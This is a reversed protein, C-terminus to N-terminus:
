DAMIVMEPQKVTKETSRFQKGCKPCTFLTEDMRGAPIEKGCESVLIGKTEMFKHGCEPCVMQYITAM